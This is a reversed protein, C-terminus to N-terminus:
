RLQIASRLSLCDLAQLSFFQRAVKRIKIHNEVKLEKEADSTEDAVNRELNM